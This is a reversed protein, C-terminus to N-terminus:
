MEKNKQHQKNATEIIMIFSCLTAAKTATGTAWYDFIVVIATATVVTMTIIMMTATATASAMELILISAISSGKLLPQLSM